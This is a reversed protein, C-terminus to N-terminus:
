KIKIESLKKLKNGDSYDYQVLGDEGIVIALGNFPIIDIAVVDKYTEILEDGVKEPNSADFKKLGAKGDCVFLHNGDIGLGHPNKLNFSRKLQPNDISSIDIVDLQNVNNGCWSDSHITVYAYNGQVVVPDCGLVHNVESRYNPLEPNNVDYILMGTTTGMFLYNEHPFLTEVERWISISEKVDPMAPNLLSLPTLQHNSMVYLYDNVIAFKTISGSIGSSGGNSAPASSDFTALEAGNLMQVDCNWCDIWTVQDNYEETTKTVNWATVVGKSVDIGDKIWYNKDRIPLANPFINETREVLIPATPTSIDFTLLDIFSNAYLYNGKTTIGTCGPINVFANITPNSPNSNNIIHFGKDPEILFLYDGFLYIGGNREINKAGEVTVSNRFTEVDTYVPEYCYYTRYTKDKCGLLILSLVFLIGISKKMKLYNQKDRQHM